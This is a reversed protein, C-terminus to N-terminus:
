PWPLREALPAKALGGTPSACVISTVKGAPFPPTGAAAVTLQQWGSGQPQALDSLSATPVDNACNYTAAYAAASTGGWIHRKGALTATNTGDSVNGSLDNSASTFSLTLTIAALNKRAISIIATPNGIIPAAMSGKFPLSVTGNTLTGTISGSSTTNLKIFGRLSNNLVDNRSILGSFSGVAGTPLPAIVLTFEQASSTGAVNRSTVKVKFNGSVKPKGTILGTGANYSLGSPLGSISYSLVPESSAMQWTLDGSVIAPPVPNLTITPKAVVQATATVTVAPLGDM